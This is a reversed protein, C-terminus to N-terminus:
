VAQGGAIRWRMSSRKLRQAVLLKCAAELADDTQAAEQNM